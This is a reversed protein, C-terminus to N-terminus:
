QTINKMVQLIVSMKPMQRFKQLYKENYKNEYKTELIILFLIIM